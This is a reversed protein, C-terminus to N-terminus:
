ESKATQLGPAAVLSVVEQGDETNWIKVEGNFGGAALRKTADHYANAFVWDSHGTFARVQKHDARQFQRISKDESGCFMFPGVATLKYAEGGFTTVDASKKGDAVKWRHIKKDSGASFVEKGDPHFAVGKVPAGHGAYTILLEGTKADFVKATKDRSASVLQSGDQNWALAFVWDSHSTIALIEKGTAVELIRVVSDAGAVALRDGAPHFAIDQVVDTTTGMVRVLTGTDAEFLRVEGQRGPSGGGVALWKGDPSFQIAHTRQGVNKWRNVLKGSAADWVTLEHYGSALVQSGDPRFAIATIPMANPYVEPPDPHTPAPIITALAAQPNEADYKAGEAIWQKVVAVQPDPIPEGELPMREAEDDTVLRRLLESEDAKAATVPVAESDGAKMMREFSDVRYGGEARKPGHCSICNDMLIPAVQERFSIPAAMSMTSCGIVWIVCHLTAFRM